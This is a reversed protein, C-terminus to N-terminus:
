ISNFEIKLQIVFIIIFLNFISVFKKILILPLNKLIKQTSLSLFPFVFDGFMTWYTSMVFISWGDLEIYWTVFKIIAFRKDNENKRWWKDIENGEWNRRMRNEQEYVIKWHGFENMRNQKKRKLYYLLNQYDKNTKKFYVFFFFLNKILINFSNNQVFIGFGAFSLSLFLRVVYNLIENMGIMKLIIEPFLVLFFVIKVWGGVIEYWM